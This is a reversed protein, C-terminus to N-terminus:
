SSVEFCVILQAISEGKQAVKLFDPRQLLGRIRNEAVATILEIFQSQVAVHEAGSAMRCINEILPSQLESPLIHLSDVVNKM